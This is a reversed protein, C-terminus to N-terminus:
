HKTKEEEEEEEKKKNIMIISIFLNYIKRALYSSYHLITELFTFKFTLM